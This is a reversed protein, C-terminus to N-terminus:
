GTHQYRYYAKRRAAERNRKRYSFVSSKKPVKPFILSSAYNKSIYKKTLLFKYFSKLVSIKRSISKKSYRKKYALPDSFEAIFSKLFALDIENLDTKGSKLDKRTMDGSKLIYESFQRLDNEYSTVTHPSYNRM